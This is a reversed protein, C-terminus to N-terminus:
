LGSGEKKSHKERTVNDRRVEKKVSKGTMSLNSKSEEPGLLFALNVPFVSIETKISNNWDKRVDQQPSEAYFKAIPKQKNKLPTIYLFSLSHCVKDWFTEQLGINKVMKIGFVFWFLTDKTGLVPIVWMCGMQKEM